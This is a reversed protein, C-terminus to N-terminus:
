RFPSPTLSTRRRSRGRTRRPWAALWASETRAGASRTSTCCGDCRNARRPPAASGSEREQFDELFEQLYRKGGAIDGNLAWSAAAFAAVDVFM